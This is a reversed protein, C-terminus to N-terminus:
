QSAADVAVARANEVLKRAQAESREKSAQMWPIWSFAAVAGYILDARAETAGQALIGSRLLGNAGDLDYPVFRYPKRPKAEWLGGVRFICDHLVYVRYETAPALIQAIRPTSGWDTVFRRDPQVRTGDSRVYTLPHDFKLQFLYMQKRLPWWAWSSPALYPVVWRESDDFGAPNLWYGHPNKTDTVTM